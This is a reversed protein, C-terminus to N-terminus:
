TPEDRRKRAESLSQSASGHAFAMSLVRGPASTPVDALFPQCATDNQRHHEICMQKGITKARKVFSREWELRGKALKKLGSNLKAKAAEHREKPTLFRACTERGRRMPDECMERLLDEIKELLSREKVAAMHQKLNSNALRRKQEGDYKTKLEELQAELEILGRGWETSEYTSGKILRSVSTSEHGTSGVKAQSELLQEVAAPTSEVQSEAATPSSSEVKPLPTSELARTSNYSLGASVLAPTSNQLLDTPITQGTGVVIRGLPDLAILDPGNEEEGISHPVRM